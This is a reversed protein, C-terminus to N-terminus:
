EAACISTCSLSNNKLASWKISLHWTALTKLASRYKIMKDSLRQMTRTIWYLIPTAEMKRGRCKSAVISTCCAQLTIMTRQSRSYWELECTTPRCTQCAASLNSMRVRMKDILPRNTWTEAPVASISLCIWTRTPGTSPSMIKSRAPGPPPFIM